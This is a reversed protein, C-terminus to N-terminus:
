GVESVRKFSDTIVKLTQGQVMEAPLFAVLMAMPPMKVTNAVFRLIRQERDPGLRNGHHRLSM